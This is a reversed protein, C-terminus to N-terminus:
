GRDRRRGAIAGIGAEVAAQLLPRQAHPVSIGDLILRDIYIQINPRDNM